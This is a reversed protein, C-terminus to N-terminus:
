KKFDFEATMNGATVTDGKTPPRRFIVIAAKNSFISLFFIEFARPIRKLYKM